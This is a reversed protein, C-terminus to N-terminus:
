DNDPVLGGSGGPPGRLEDLIASAIEAANSAHETATVAHERAAEEDGDDLAAIAADLAADALDLEGHADELRDSVDADPVRDAMQEAREVTQDARNVWHSARDVAQEANPARDVHESSGQGFGPIRDIAQPPAGPAEGVDNGAISRAIDRVEHGGLTSARERLEMIASANIGKDELMDVPLGEAVVATQNVMREVSRREAELRATQAQYKGESIEGAERQDRLEQLRLEIEDLRAENETLREAVIDAQADVTAAQAITLGFARETVESNLEAEHAGIVGMMREGPHVVSHAGDEGPEDALAAFPMVMLMGVAFAVLVAVVTVERMM